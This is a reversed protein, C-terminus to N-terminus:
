EPRFGSDVLFTFELGAGERVLSYRQSDSQIIHVNFTDKKVQNISKQNV